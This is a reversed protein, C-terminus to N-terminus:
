GGFERLVEDFPIGEGRAIEARAEAAAHRDEESEPEDDEPALLLSFAVPDVLTRITQTLRDVIRSELADLDARTIPQQQEESM